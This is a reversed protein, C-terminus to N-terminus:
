RQLASKLGSYVKSKGTNRVSTREVVGRELEKIFVRVGKM